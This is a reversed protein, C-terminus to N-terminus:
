QHGSESMTQRTLESIRPELQRLREFRVASKRAQAQADADADSDLAMMGLAVISEAFSKASVEEAAVWRPYDQLVTTSATEPHHLSAIPLGTGAYEYVKGSSIYESQGLVLLLADFRSYVEAVQTKSVIGMYRVGDAAYSEILELMQANPASYHGLRGHIEFVANALVPCHKRAQRWGELTEHVPMPGYITGLYGFILGDPSSVRDVQGQLFEPDFGNTVVHFKPADTPFERAHWQLIPKNVFWVESASKLLRKEWRASRSSRSGIRSGRYMDLHWTDRYDMVYPIGHSKNLYYGPLFDINPNATGIVLDVPINRHVERAAAVLPRRWAGYRPEPFASSEGLSKLFSWLLPSAVRLRTWQSLNTEGRSLDFPVRVVTISSHIQQEALEDTGTLSAFTERTATLVTVRWGAEAYANATALARYMGAGRAPPYGWAVYLLHPKRM